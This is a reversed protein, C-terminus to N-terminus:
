WWGPCMRKADGRSSLAVANGPEMQLALDLDYLAGAETCEMQIRTAQHRSGQKMAYSIMGIGGPYSTM